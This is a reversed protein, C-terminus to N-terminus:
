EILTRLFRLDKEAVKEWSFQRAYAKSSNSLETMEKEGLDLIDLTISTMSEISKLSAFFVSECRGFVEKLAPIDYAVVPLGCALAEAVAIGWGEFVSPFAFIRSSKLLSYLENESCRGRVFVKNMLGSSVIREKVQPLELGDGIIMLKANKKVKVVEKWVKLLDFVGKEKAIRGVFIGDFTKGKSYPKAKDILNLEVANGSVFIKPKSVGNNRLAEKTFNSVVIIAKARKLIPLTVYFAITKVLSVPRSYRIKRYSDYLSYNEADKKRPLADIHHAVVCLPHHFTLNILYGSILNPLTNNPILILNPKLNRILSFGKFTSRIIWFIWELYTSLWGKGHFSSPSLHTKCIIERCELLSPAPELVNIELNDKACFKELTKIFRKEAGGMATVRTAPHFFIAFVRVSSHQEKEQTLTTKQFITEQKDAFL